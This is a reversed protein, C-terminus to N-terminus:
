LGLTKKRLKIWEVQEALSAGRQTLDGWTQDKLPVTKKKKKLGKDAKRSFKEQAEDKTQIPM